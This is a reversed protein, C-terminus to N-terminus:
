IVQEAKLGLVLSTVLLLGVLSYLFIYPVGPLIIHLGFIIRLGNLAPIGMIPMAIIMPLFSLMRKKAEKKLM